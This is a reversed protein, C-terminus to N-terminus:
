HACKSERLISAISTGDLYSEVTARYDDGVEPPLIIDTLALDLVIPLREGAKPLVPSLYFSNYLLIIRIELEHQWREGKYKVAALTDTREEIGDMLDVNYDIYRVPAISVEKFAADVGNFQARLRGVTSSVAAGMGDPVYEAWMRADEGGRYWCSIYAQDNPGAELFSRYLGRQEASLTGLSDRYRADALYHATAIRGEDPDGRDGDRLLKLRTLYLNQTLLLDRLKYDPLYRTIVVDDELDGRADAVYRPRAIVEDAVTPVGFLRHARLYADNVFSGEVRSSTM